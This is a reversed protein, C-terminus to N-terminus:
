AVAVIIVVIIGIIILLCDWFSLCFDQCHGQANCGEAICACDDTDNNDVAAQWESRIGSHDEQLAKIDRGAAELLKAYKPDSTRRREADVIVDGFFGKPLNTLKRTLNLKPNSLAKKLREIDGEALEQGARLYLSRVLPQIFEPSRTLTAPKKGARKIADYAKAQEVTLMPRAPDRLGRKVSWYANRVTDGYNSSRAMKLIVEIAEVFAQPGKTSPAISDLFESSTSIPSM